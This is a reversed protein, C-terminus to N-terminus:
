KPEGSKTGRAKIISLGEKRLIEFLGQLFELYDEYSSISAIQLAGIRAHAMCIEWSEIPNVEAIRSQQELVRQCISQFSEESSKPNM